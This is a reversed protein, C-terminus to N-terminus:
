GITVMSMEGDSSSFIDWQKKVSKISIYNLNVKKKKKLFFPLM